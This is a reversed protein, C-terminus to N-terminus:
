KREHLDCGGSPSVSAHGRLCCWGWGYHEKDSERYICTLCTDCKNINLGGSVYNDYETKSKPMLRGRGRVSRVDGSLLGVAEVSPVISGVMATATIM